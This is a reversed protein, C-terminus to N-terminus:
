LRKDAVVHLQCHLCKRVYLLTLGNLHFYNGCRPCRVIAAYFAIAFMVVFWAIFAESVAKYSMAMGMLPMYALIITWLYWRRRRVTKLGKRLTANDITQCEDDSSTTDDTM